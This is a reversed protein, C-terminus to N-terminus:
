PMPVLHGISGLGDGGSMRVAIMDVEPKVEIVSPSLGGGRPTLQQEAVLATGAMFRLQYFDNGDVSVEYREAHGPPLHIHVAPHERSLKFGHPQLYSAGQPVRINLQGVNIEIDASEACTVHAANTTREFVLREVFTTQSAGVLVDLRSDPKVEVVLGDNGTRAM